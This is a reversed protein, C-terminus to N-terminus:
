PQEAAIEDESSTSKKNITLQITRCTGESFYINSEWHYGKPSDATLLHNGASAFVNVALSNDCSAGSSFYYQILGAYESDIYIETYGIDVSNWFTVLGQDGGYPNNPNYGTGGELVGGGEQPIYYGILEIEDSGGYVPCTFCDLFAAYRSTKRYLLGIQPNLYEEETVDYRETVYQEGWNDNHYKVRYAQFTGLEITVSSTSLTVAQSNTQSFFMAFNSWSTKELDIMTIYSDGLKHSISLSNGPSNGIYLYDGLLRNNYYKKGTVRLTIYKTFEYQLNVETVVLYTTGEEYGSIKGNETDTSKVSYVWQANEAVPFLDPPKNVTITTSAEDFLGQEDTVKLKVQYTGITGYYKSISVNTSTNGDGFDWFYSLVDGDQDTSSSADFNVTLPRNGSTVDANLIAIPPHNVKKEKEDKECSLLAILSVSIILGFRIPKM